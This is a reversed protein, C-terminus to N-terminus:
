TNQLRLRKGEEYTLATEIKCVELLAALSDLVDQADDVILVRKGRIYEKADV